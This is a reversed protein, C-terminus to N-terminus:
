QADSTSFFRVGFGSCWCAIINCTCANDATAPGVGTGRSAHEEQNGVIAARRTAATAQPPCCTM